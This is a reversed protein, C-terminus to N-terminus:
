RYYYVTTKGRSDFLYDLGGTLDYHHTESCGSDDIIDIQISRDHFGRAHSFPRVNVVIKEIDTFSNKLKETLEKQTETFSQYQQNKKSQEKCFITVKKVVSALTKINEIFTDLIQRQRGAIGCYPDFIVLNSVYKGQVAEFIEKIQRAQGEKYSWRKVPANDSLEAESFFKAKKLIPELQKRTSIDGIKVYCPEPLLVGTAPDTPRDTYVVLPMEEHGAIIRPLNEYQNLNNTDIWGIKFKADGSFPYLYRLANRFEAPIKTAAIKPKGIFLMSATKGQNLWDLLWQLTKTDCDADIVPSRGLLTVHTVGSIRESLMTMSPNEWRVCGMEEFPSLAEGATFDGLWPRVIHRDFQDWSAQNSYDCLCSMCASSCERPCEMQELAEKFLRKISINEALRLCYGAGGAIADYLVVDIYRGRRRFTARLEGVQMEMIDAAAFRIAEVLTRAFSDQFQKEKAPEPGWPIERNIRLVLVDTEFSHELDKPSPLRSLKCTRGAVPDRHSLTVPAPKKAPEAYNCFPCIHYGMKRPGRNIIVMKGEQQGESPIARLIVRKVAVHDTNQFQDEQPTIILRAEDAKRSRRRHMGPNKGTRDDYHTVFGKPQIVQRPWRQETSGCNSCADSVDEFAIQKEVHRCDPCAVYYETPMFQKPYYALGASRWIRGNAVVESDPAYESIGLAADRNLAVDGGGFGFFHEKEKVVELSLNHVPFSYTPILGRHSLQEVLFQKMFREQMNLWHRKANVAKQKEATAHAQTEEVDCEQLKKDYTEWRDHVVEAFRQLNERVHICLEGGILGTSTPVTDPLLRLLREAEALYGRGPETELWYNLDERFEEFDRQGFSEGFFDVLSPANKTLDKIRYRLFGSLVIGNQHRRFLQPNDLLFFPIPVKSELYQRFHRYSSQDHNSNKAVTVCFPAAQARRGARGTRQQYNAIGPPINLNVVAELEGLDVGMEMTTTCSILNIKDEAFEQEIRERLDTSLSATHEKARPIMARGSSYSYIYHNKQSLEERGQDDFQHTSGKCKFASCRDNVVFMQMLGCSECVHLPAGSTPIFQLKEGDIGYGKDLKILLGLDDITEWFLALFDRAQDWTWGLQEVLYWSRRNHRKGEAPSWSHSVHPDVRKFQYAKNFAFVQGWIFPDRMDVDFLNGVAKERRINELFLWSLNEIQDHFEAPTNEHLISFLRKMMQDPFSVRVLGMAELSNRRGTPTCFEAAILGMLLPKVKRKNTEFRGDEVVLGAQGQKNWYRWVEEALLELDMPEEEPDENLLVQYIATRLAIDGGTREFYPAFFAADQRNDSFTLLGRGQMPRPEEHQAPPLAELVKQVIVSSFAENGPHLRTVIESDTAGSSGGCAPCKRVYDADDEENHTTKVEHITLLPGGDPNLEGSLPCINVEREKEKVKKTNETTEVVEDNEDETPHDTPLGLWFVRRITFSGDGPNRPYLVSDSEFGEFFPQGCKRCIMLPFYPVGEPDTHNRFPEIQRWGESSEKSLAICVGEISNAALHYRCPLLPFSQDNSRALMGLHMVASLGASSEKVSVKEGFIHKAVDQFLCVGNKELFNSVQRVEKNQSFLKLLETGFHGDKELSLLKKTPDSEAIRSHWAQLNMNKSDIMDQLIGGIQIWTTLNLNFSGGEGQISSHPVRRGRVVHKVEEGFLNSAFTCIREDNTKGEPLSASTGFVQLPTSCGLRNKLKRLLYAVETAQAGSYTHIEDLVIMQLRNNEFLPANRPLLLLHELMAYNTILIHPPKQLMEERTLLWNQPISRSALASLLKNNKKLQSEIESRISNAKVHSTFRGFRIGYNALYSGFLPAIRYYLQDNALSNMPYVILCRVGPKELDGEMLLRNAIPFLFSETKGSGTGTAVMLSQDDRCALTLAEEQHKHLPRDLWDQPLLRFGEHVLGEKLLSGLSQGKEFDPLAEVYPGKVLTQQNLLNRFQKQLAPYRRSIPLTTPIYRRLTEQLTEFLVLPNNESM